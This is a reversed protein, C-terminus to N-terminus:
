CSTGSRGRSEGPLQGRFLCSIPFNALKTPEMKGAVDCKSVPKLDVGIMTMVFLVLLFCIVLSGLNAFRMSELRECWLSGAVVDLPINIASIVEPYATGILVVAHASEM